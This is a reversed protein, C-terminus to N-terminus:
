VSGAARGRIERNPPLLVASDSYIRGLAATDNRVYAASFARSAAVIATSDRAAEGGQAVAVLPSLSGMLVTVLACRTRTM